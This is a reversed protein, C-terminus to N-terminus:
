GRLGASSPLGSSKQPERCDPVKSPRFISFSRVVSLPTNDAHLALGLFIALSVCQIQEPISKFYKCYRYM